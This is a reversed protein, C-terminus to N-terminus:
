AKSRFTLHAKGSSCYVTKKGSSKTSSCRYTRVSCAKSCKSNLLYLRLITKASPCPTSRSASVSLPTGVRQVGCSHLVAPSVIDPRPNGHPFCGNLDFPPQSCRPPIKPESTQPAKALVSPVFDVRNSAINFVPPPTSGTIDGSFAFIDFEYAWDPNLGMGTFTVTTSGAPLVKGAIWDTASDDGEDQVYVIFSKANPDATWSATFTDADGSYQGIVVPQLRSSQDIAFTVKTHDGDGIAYWSGGPNNEGCTSCWYTSRTSPMGPFRQNPGGMHKTFGDPGVLTVGYTPTPGDLWWAPSILRGSWGSVWTGGVIQFTDTPRASAIPLSMAGLVVVLV